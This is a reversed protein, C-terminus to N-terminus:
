EKQERSFCEGKHFNFLAGSKAPREVEYRHIAEILIMELEEKKLM